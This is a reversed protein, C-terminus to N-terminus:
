LSGESDLRHCHRDSSSVSLPLFPAFCVLPRVVSVSQTSCPLSHWFIHFPMWFYVRGVSCHVWQLESVSEWKELDRNKPARPPFRLQAPEAKVPNKLWSLSTVSRVSNASRFSVSYALFIIFLLSSAISLVLYSNHKVPDAHGPMSITSLQLAKLLASSLYTFISAPLPSFISLHSSLNNPLSKYHM